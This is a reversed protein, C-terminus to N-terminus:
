SGFRLFELVERNFDDPNDMNLLHNARKIIRFKANPIMEAMEKGQAHTQKNNEAVLVLTSSKIRKLKDKGAYAFAASMVRMSISHDYRKMEQRVFKGVHPNLSGYQKASLDVLMSQPTIQLFPKAFGTQIREWMSNRTGFATEALILKQIREPFVTALQQAVMGGLSHGCVHAQSINLRNLQEIVYEALVEISYEGNVDQVNGHAPLDLTIVRFDKSFDVVQSQWMAQSVLAGHILLLAEGTGSINYNAMNGERWRGALEHTLRRREVFEGDAWGAERERLGIRM